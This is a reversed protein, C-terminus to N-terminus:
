FHGWHNAAILILSGIALLVGGVLHAVKRRYPTAYGLASVLGAAAMFLFGLEALRGAAHHTIGLLLSWGMRRFVGEGDARICAPRAGARARCSILAFGGSPEGEDIPM